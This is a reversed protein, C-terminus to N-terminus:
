FPKLGCVIGILELSAVGGWGKQTGEGGLTERCTGKARRPPVMTARREGDWM